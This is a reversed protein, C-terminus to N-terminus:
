QKVFKLTILKNDQLIKLYYIGSTLQQVNWRYSADHTSATAITRGNMDVVSLSKVTSGNLGNVFLVTKVPNPYIAVTGEKKVTIMAATVAQQSLVPGNDECINTFKPAAKIVMTVATVQASDGTAKPNAGPSSVAYNKFRVLPNTSAGCTGFSASVKTLYAFAATATSRAATTDLEGGILYGSDATKVIVRSTSSYGPKVNGLVANAIVHGGTDLRVLSTYTSGNATDDGAVVYSDADAQLHPNSLMTTYRAWVVKGTSDFKSVFTRGGNSVYGAVLLGRDKLLLADQTYLTDPAKLSTAGLAAGTDNIKLNILRFSSFGSIIFINGSSKVITEGAQVGGLVNYLKQWLLGGNNGRLCAAYIKSPRGGSEEENLGTILVNGDKTTSIANANHIGAGSIEKSWLVNGLSNITFVCIRDTTVGGDASLNGVIAYKNGQGRTVRIKGAQLRGALSYTNSWQIRNVSDIKVVLFGTTGTTTLGAGARGVAIYGSDPTSVIDQFDEANLGLVKKFSTQAQMSTAAFLFVCLCYLVKKM